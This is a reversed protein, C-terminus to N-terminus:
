SHAIQPLHLSSYSLSSVEPFYLFCFSMWEIWRPRHSGCSFQLQHGAPSPIIAGGFGACGQKRICSEYMRSDWFHKTCLSALARALKCVTPRESYLTAHTLPPLQPLSSVSVVIQLWEASKQPETLPQTENKDM